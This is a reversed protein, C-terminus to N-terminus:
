IPSTPCVWPGKSWLYETTALAKDCHLTRCHGWSWLWLIIYLYTLDKLKLNLMFIYIYIHNQKERNLVKHLGNSTQHLRGSIPLQNHFDQCAGQIELHVQLLQIHDDSSQNWVWLSSLHLCIMAPPKHPPHFRLRKKWLPAPRADFVNPICYCCEKAM